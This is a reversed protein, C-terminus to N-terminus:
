FRKRDIVAYAVCLDFFCTQRSATCDHMWTDFVCVHSVDPSVYDLPGAAASGAAAGTQFQLQTKCCVLRKRQAVAAAKTRRSCVHVASVDRWALM